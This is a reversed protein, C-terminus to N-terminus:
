HHRAEDQLVPAYARRRVDAADDEREDLQSHEETLRGVRRVIEDVDEREILHELPIIRPPGPDPRALPRVGSIPRPVHARFLRRKKKAWRGNGMDWTRRKKTGMSGMRVAVSAADRSRAVM